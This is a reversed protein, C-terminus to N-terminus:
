KFQKGDDERERERPSKSRVKLWFSSSLKFLLLRFLPPFTEKEFGRM